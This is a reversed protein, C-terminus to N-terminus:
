GPLTMFLVLVTATIMWATNGTDLKSEEVPDSTTVEETIVINAEASSSQNQDADQAFGYSTISLLILSSILTRLCHIVNM